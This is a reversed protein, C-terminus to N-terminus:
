IKNIFLLYDSLINQIFDAWNKIQELLGTYDLQIFEIHNNIIILSIIFIIAQLLSFIVGEFNNLSSNINKANLIGDLPQLAVLLPCPRDIGVKIHLLKAISLTLVLVLTFVMLFSLFIRMFDNTIIRYIVEFSSIDMTIYWSFVVAFGLGIVMAIFRNLPCPGHIKAIVKLLKYIILKLIIFLLLIALFSILYTTKEDTNAFNFLGLNVLDQYFISSIIFGIILWISHILIKAGGRIFGIIAFLVFIAFLVWDVLTINQLFELVDNM